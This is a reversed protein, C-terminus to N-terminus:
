LSIEKKREAPLIEIRDEDLITNLGCGNDWVVMISGIDHLRRVTGEIGIPPAQLDDMRMLRIRM